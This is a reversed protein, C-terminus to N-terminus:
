GTGAGSLRRRPGPAGRGIAERNLRRRANRSLRWVPPEESCRDDTSEAVLSDLLPKTAVRPAKRSLHRLVLPGVEGVVPEGDIRTEEGGAMKKVMGVLFRREM